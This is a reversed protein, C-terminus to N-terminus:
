PPPHLTSTSPQPNVTEPERIAEPERPLFSISPEPTRTWTTPYRSAGLLRSRRPSKDRARGGMHPSGDGFCRDGQGAEPGRDSGNPPARNLPCGVRCVLKVYHSHRPPSPPTSRRRCTRQSADDFLRMNGNERTCAQSRLRTPQFSGPDEQCHATCRGATRTVFTQCIVAM